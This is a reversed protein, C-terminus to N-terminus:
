WWSWVHSKLFDKGSMTQYQSCKNRSQSPEAIIYYSSSIIINPHCFKKVRPPPKCDRKRTIKQKYKQKM